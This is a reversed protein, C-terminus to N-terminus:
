DGLPSSASEKPPDAEPSVPQPKDSLVDKAARACSIDWLRLALFVGMVTLPALSSKIAVLLFVVTVLLVRDNLNRLMLGAFLTAALAIVTIEVYYDSAFTLESLLTGGTSTGVRAAESGHFFVAADLVNSVGFPLMLLLAIVAGLAVAVLVEATKRINKAVVNAQLDFLVLVAFPLIAYIKTMMALSMLIISMAEPHFKSRNRAYVSAIMFLLTLSANDFSYFLMVIGAFPAFSLWGVDTIRRLLYLAAGSFVLNAVVFWVPTGLFGLTEHAGVYVMLDLPLYNYPGMSWAPNPAYKGKFRPVVYEEYPNVGNELSTVAAEVANDIDHIEEFYSFYLVFSVAFAIFAIWALVTILTARKKLAAVLRGMGASRLGIVWISVIVVLIGNYFLDL